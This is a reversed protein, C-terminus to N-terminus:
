CHCRGVPIDEVAVLMARTGTSSSAGVRPAMPCGSVYVQLPLVAISTRSVAFATTRSSLLSLAPGRRRHLVQMKVMRQTARATAGGRQRAYRLRRSRRLRFIVM